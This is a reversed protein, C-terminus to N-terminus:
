VNMWLDKGEVGVRMDVDHEGEGLDGKDDDGGDDDDEADNWKYSLPPLFEKEEDGDGDGPGMNSHTFCHFVFSSLSLVPIVKPKHTFM